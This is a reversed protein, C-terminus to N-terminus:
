VAVTNSFCQGMRALYLAPNRIRDLEGMCERLKEATIGAEKRARCGGHLALIFYLTSLIFYLTYLICPVVAAMCPPLPFLLAHM